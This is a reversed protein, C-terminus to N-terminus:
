MRLRDKLSEIESLHFKFEGRMETAQTEMEGKMVLLSEKMERVDGVLLDFRGVFTKVIHRTMGIGTLPVSLAVALVVMSEASELGFM